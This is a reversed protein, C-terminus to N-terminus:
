EVIADRDPEVAVVDLIAGTSVEVLGGEVPTNDLLLANTTQIM